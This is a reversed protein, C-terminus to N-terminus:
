FSGRILVNCLRNNQAGNATGTNYTNAANLCLAAGTAAVDGAVNFSAGAVTDSAQVVGSNPVGDDKKTDVQFAELPTLGNSFTPVGSAAVSTIGIMRYVNTGAFGPYTVATGATYAIFSNSAGAKSAPFSNGIANAAIAANTNIAATSTIADGIYGANYMHRWFALPEGSMLVRTTSADELAGNGAITSTTACDGAAFFNTCNALDGPLGNYKGRFANVAADFKDIQGVAARIQAAKILDQGVLVGGVILGIIVLVIALEVLTFGSKKTTTRKM